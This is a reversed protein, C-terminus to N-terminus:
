IKMNQLCLIMHPLAVSQDLLSLVPQTIAVPLDNSKISKIASGIPIKPITSPSDTILKKFSNWYSSGYSVLLEEGKKIKKTAKIKIIKDKHNISFRCNNTLPTSKADNLLRGPATNTRAADVVTGKKIELVYASGDTNVHDTPHIDGTYYTIMQNKEFDRAAFLGKGSSDVSGKSKIQLGDILKLHTFCHKGNLTKRGCQVLRKTDAVCRQSPMKIQHNIKDPSFNSDLPQFNNLDCYMKSLNRREDIVTQMPANSHILQQVKTDQENITLMIHIAQAIDQQLPEIPPEIVHTHNLSTSNDNVSHIAILTNSNFADIAQTSPQTDMTSLSDNSSSTPQSQTPIIEDSFLSFDTAAIQQYEFLGCYVKLQIFSTENFMVHRSQFERQEVCDYLKYCHQTPDYGLHIVPISKPDLKKSHPNKAWADCFMVRLHNLPTIDSRGANLQLRTANFTKNIRANNWIYTAQDSAYPWLEKPAGAHHLLSRTMEQITRIYREAYPNQESAHGQTTRFLIFNETCYQYITNNYSEGQDTRLRQVRLHDPFRAKITNFVHLIWKTSDSKLHIPYTWMFGTFEDVGVLLYRCTNVATTELTLIDFALYQNARIPRYLDPVRGITPKTQKATKCADCDIMNIKKDHKHPLLIGSVIIGCAAQLRHMADASPHGLQAHLRRLISDSNQISNQTSNSISTNLIPTLSDVGEIQSPRMSQEDSIFIENEEIVTDIDDDDHHVYAAISNSNSNIDNMESSSSSDITKLRNHKDIFMKLSHIGSSTTSTSYIPVGGLSLTISTDSAKYTIDFNGFRMLDRLSLLNFRVEDSRIAGKIKISHNQTLWLSLDGCQLNTATSGNAFLLRANHAPRINSLPIHMRVVTRLAGSDVLFDLSTPSDECDVM